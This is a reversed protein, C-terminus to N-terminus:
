ERYKIALGKLFNRAFKDGCEKYNKHGEKRLLAGLEGKTVAIGADAFINLMDETTLALAIKVKKLLLNNVNASKRLAPEPTEPQGPKPEQKGRKYIILGNLFSDLMVNNCKINEEDEAYDDDDYGDSSKTLIKVVEPVTVEVGGLKFIKAIEANKIELAYRLRILIDNNDM